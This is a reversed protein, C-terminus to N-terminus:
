AGVLQGVFDPNRRLVDLLLPTFARVFREEADRDFLATDGGQAVGQQALIAHVTEHLLTDRMMTSVQHPHLVITAAEESLLGYRADGCKKRSVKVQYAHPGIQVEVPIRRKAM